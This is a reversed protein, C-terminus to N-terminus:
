GFFFSLPSPPPSVVAGGGFTKKHVEEIPFKALVNCLDFDV